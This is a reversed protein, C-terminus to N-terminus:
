LMLIKFSCVGNYACSCEVIVEESNPVLQEDAPTIPTSAKGNVESAAHYPGTFFELLNLRSLLNQFSLVGSCDPHVMTLYKELIYEIM